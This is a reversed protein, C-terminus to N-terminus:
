RRQPDRGGDDGSASMARGDPRDRRMRDRRMRDRRMRDRRMRDDYDDYGV